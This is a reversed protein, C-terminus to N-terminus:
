SVAIPPDFLVLNHRAKCTDLAVAARGEPTFALGEPKGTLKPLQWIATCRATDDRPRLDDLRAIAASKDSLLYLHGDPGVELDSFDECVSTLLRDPFWVSLAVFEHRGEPIPWRAGNALAGGRALGRPSSGSPGFEILAPPKKEKAVLLHGGRLLVVGEGGSGKPQAWSRALSDRASMVLDVSAVARSAGFDILEVHPPAEQLM